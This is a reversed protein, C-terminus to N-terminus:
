DVTIWDYDEPEIVSEAGEYEDIRYKNGKLTAVRFNRPKLNEVAAVFRPDHRSVDVEGDYEAPVDFGLRTCEARLKPSLYFGGHGSHYVVKRAGGQAVLPEDLDDLSNDRDSWGEKVQEKILLKLQRITLKM